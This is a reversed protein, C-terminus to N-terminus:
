YFADMTSSLDSHIDMTAPPEIGNRFAASTDILVRRIHLIFCHLFSGYHCPTDDTPRRKAHRHVTGAWQPSLDKCLRLSM